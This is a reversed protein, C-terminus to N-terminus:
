LGMQVIGQRGYQSRKPPSLRCAAIMGVVQPCQMASCSLTTWLQSLTVTCATLPGSVQPMFGFSSSIHYCVPDKHVICVHKSNKAQNGTSYHNCCLDTCSDSGCDAM